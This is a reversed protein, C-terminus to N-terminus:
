ASGRDRRDAFPFPRIACLFPRPEQRLPRSELALRRPTFTNAPWVTVPPSIMTRWRPVRKLGPSPTPMPVRRCSRRWTRPCTSNLFAPAAADDRDGRGVRRGGGGAVLEAAKPSTVRGAGDPAAPDRQHGRARAAAGRVHGRARHRRAPARRDGAPHRLVAHRGHGARDADRARGHRQPGPARSEGLATVAFKTASYLSGPLVRRGAVSSTLILHGRSERLAAMTARITYAVGLVNTLVMERMEDPDHKEFGRPGGFGANAFAVDLAGFADLARAVLAAQDGYETVDCRVAIARDGGGLEAALDRLKDESRASLVVRYGAAAAARATAAGIGTSAGTIVIVPDPM